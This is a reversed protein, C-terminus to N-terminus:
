KKWETAETTGAFYHRPHLGSFERFEHIFHSQDFYGCDYAIDTLSGQSKGFFSMAHHFRVIRSYLKPSFGTHQKFLRELHRKSLHYNAALEEIPRTGKTEMIYRVMPVVCPHSHCDEIALRRLLFSGIISARKKNCAALMMREELDRGQQGLLEDLCPISNIFDSAPIGFLRSLAYPYLYVGFLGFPRDIAFRSFRDSPGAIGSTISTSSSGGPHLERFIGKYHFLLEACGDPMSRHIYLGDRPQGELVWFFRVYRTLAPPPDITYYIM